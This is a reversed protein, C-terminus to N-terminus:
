LDLVANLKEWLKNGSRGSARSVNIPGGFVKRAASGKPWMQIQGNPNEVVQFTVDKTRMGHKTKTPM